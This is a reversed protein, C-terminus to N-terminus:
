SAAVERAKRFMQQAELRLDEDKEDQLYNLLLTKTTPDNSGALRQLAVLREQLATVNASDGM